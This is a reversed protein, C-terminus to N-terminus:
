SSFASNVEFVDLVFPLSPMCRWLGVWYCYRSPFSYLLLQYSVHKRADSIRITWTTTCKVPISMTTRLRCRSYRIFGISMTFGVRGVFGIAVSLVTYLPADEKKRLRAIASLAYELTQMHRGNTSFNSRNLIASREVM